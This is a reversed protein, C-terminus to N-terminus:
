WNRTTKGHIGWNLNYKKKERTGNEVIDDRV